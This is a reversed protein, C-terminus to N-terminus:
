NSGNSNNEINNSNDYGDVYNALIEKAFEVDLNNITEQIKSISEQIIELPLKCEEAKMIQPHETVSVNDGLILEEFLKEGPRLGTFKIEIDGNPNDSSIPTFGYLYILKTALDLIKIPKGMDLVFVDGGDSMTSAQIILQVAEPISMFYRTVEAHTVTLPGGKKIQKRFLPVVSGTSNLVNGFRVMTFCTETQIDAFSQLILEAMRKSAGMVNTPRVAKDTSVLVFTEVKANKAATASHYTGLVNNKIGELPNVEVLPVHKYAAAHFITNIKYSTFLETLKNEDTVSGLVPIIEIGNKTELIEQHIRYLAFESREFLILRSPNLEIIQRCLESGISGGAGTVVINQSSINKGLLSKEPVVVDRGLIEDIDIERIDEINVKGDLINEISPLSKVKISYDKLLSLIEKIRKRGVSPMALIIVELEKSKIIVNLEETSFVEINHIFTHHKSEDDDFFAVPLFENSQKLGQVLQAGAVGGGYIGVHKLPYYNNAFSYIVWKAFYRM